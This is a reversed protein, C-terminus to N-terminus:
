NLSEWDGEKSFEKEKEKGRRLGEQECVGGGGEGVEEGREEEQRV